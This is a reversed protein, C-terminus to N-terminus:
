LTQASCWLLAPYTAAWALVFRNLGLAYANIVHFILAFGILTLCSEPRVLALPFLCELAIVSWSALRNLRPQSLWSPPFLPREYITSQLFGALARGSRWNATRLKVLGALFYSNCTHLAIYWLAGVTVIRHAPFLTAVSLATLVLLTMFDSGGNFSGRWRLSILLTSLWLFLMPLAHPVLTIAVACLLRVILLTSFRRESLLGDLVRLAAAGFVELDRRVVRWPWVGDDAAVRRIAWLELSQLAIAIGILRAVWSLADHASLEM